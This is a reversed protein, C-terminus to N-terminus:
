SRSQSGYYVASCPNHGIGYLIESLSQANWIALDARLGPLLSGVQKELGLAQAAHRTMGLWAEQVTLGFM